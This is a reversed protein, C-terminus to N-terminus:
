WSLEKLPDRLEIMLPALDIEKRLPIGGDTGKQGTVNVFSNGGWGPYSDGRGAQSSESEM